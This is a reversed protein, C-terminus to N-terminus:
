RRRVPKRVALARKKAPTSKAKKQAPKAAVARKNGKKSTTSKVNKGGTRKSVKTVSKKRIDAPRYDSERVPTRATQAAAMYAKRQESLSYNSANQDRFYARYAPDVQGIHVVADEYHRVGVSAGPSTQECSCALVAGVFIAFIYCINKRM